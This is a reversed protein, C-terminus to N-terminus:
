RIPFHELYNLDEKFWCIFSKRLHRAQDAVRYHQIDKKIKGLRFVREVLEFIEDELYASHLAIFGLAKILDGDDVRGM